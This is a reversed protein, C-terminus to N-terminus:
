GIDLGARDLQCVFSAQRPKPLPMMLLSLTLSKRPLHRSTALNVSYQACVDAMKPKFMRTIVVSSARSASRLSDSCPVPEKGVIGQDDSSHILKPNVIQSCAVVIEVMDRFKSNELGGVNSWGGLVSQVPALTHGSSISDHDM